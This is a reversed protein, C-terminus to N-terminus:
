KVNLRRLDNAKITVLQAIIDFLKTYNVGEWDDWDCVYGSCSKYPKKNILTPCYMLQNDDDLWFTMGFYESNIM